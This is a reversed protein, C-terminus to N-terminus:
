FILSCAKGVTSAEGHGPLLRTGSPIKRSIWFLSECIQKESGGLLDTRGYGDAFLTDGSFLVKDEQNWYCVSGPSHGPTHLVKLPGIMSDEQFKIDPAPLSAFRDSYQCFMAGCSKLLSLQDQLSYLADPHIGVKAMPFRDAVETLALMHDWHAHTLLIFDLHDLGRTIVQAEDGPDIMIVLDDTCHLVYCNTGIPGVEYRDIKMETM